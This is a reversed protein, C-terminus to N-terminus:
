EVLETQDKKESKSLERAKGGKDEKQIKMISNVLLKEAV